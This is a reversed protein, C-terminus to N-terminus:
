RKGTQYIPDHPDVRYLWISKGVRAVPEGDFLPKANQQLTVSVAVWGADHEEPSLPENQVGVLEPYTYTDYLLRVSRINNSKMYSGLRSLDQGWDLNSDGLFREEHGRAVENFYALYDPSAALSEAAHWVLLAGALLLGVKRSTESFELKAFPAAGVIALFPYLPLVHRVGINLNAAMAVGMIVAVPVIAFVMERAWPLKRNRVYIGLGLAFLLLQPITSKVGVAVPFYSWKGGRYGEGLLYARHGKENHAVLELVGQWFAPAPLTLGEIKYAVLQSLQTPAPRPMNGKEPPLMVKGVEFLYIGWVMVAALALFAGGRRLGLGFEGAQALELGLWRKWRAIAFYLAIIPLLFAIASFKTTLALATSASALLCNRWSSKRSWQWLFYSAMLLTGTVPIDVTVLGSHALITPCLSAIVTAALAARPGYLRLAWVYVFLVTLAAFVLTGARAWALSRWYFESGRIRWVEGIYYYYAVEQSLLGPRYSDPLRLGTMWYPLAASFFRGLPPHQPGITYKQHQVYELGTTLHFNEDVTDNFIRYTAVVRFSFVLFAFAALIWPARRSM